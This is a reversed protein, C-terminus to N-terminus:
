ALVTDNKRTILIGLNLDACIYVTSGGIFSVGIFSVISIHM